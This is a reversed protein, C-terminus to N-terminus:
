TLRMCSQLENESATRFRTEMDATESRMMLVLAMAAFALVCLGSIVSFRTRLSPAASFLSM